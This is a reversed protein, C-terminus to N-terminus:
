HELDNALDFHGFFVGFHGLVVIKWCFKVYTPPLFLYGHYM